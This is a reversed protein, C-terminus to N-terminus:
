RPHWHSHTQMQMKHPRRRGQVCKGEKTFVSVTGDESTMGLLSTRSHTQNCRNHLCNAFPSSPSMNQTAQAFMPSGSRDHLHNCFLSAQEAKTKNASTTDTMGLTMHWCSVLPQLPMLYTYRTRSQLVSVNSGTPSKMTWKFASGLHYTTNRGRQTLGIAITPQDRQAHASNIAM